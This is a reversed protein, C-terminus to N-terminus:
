KFSRALTIVQIDNAGAKSLVRSCENLTSGTTFVDDILVIKKGKLREKGTFIFANKLNQRRAKGSLTTQHPTNIQRKLINPRIKERQDDFLIEALLLAQNFGREQLRKVHLPVPIIVDPRDLDNKLGTQQWLERFTSFATTQGGYKFSHVLSAAPEKYALIARAKSFYYPTTLCVSCLHNSGATDPFIQGCCRCYPPQILSFDALCRPCLHLDQRSALTAHCVLCSAPFFLKSATRLLQILPNRSLAYLGVYYVKRHM